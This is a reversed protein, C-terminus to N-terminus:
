QIGEEEINCTNEIKMKYLEEDSGERRRERHTLAAFFATLVLDACAQQKASSNELKEQM